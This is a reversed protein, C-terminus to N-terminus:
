QRERRLKMCPCFCKSLKKVLKCVLLNAHFFLIAPQEPVDLATRQAPFAFRVVWDTVQRHTQQLFGEARQRLMTERQVDRRSSM